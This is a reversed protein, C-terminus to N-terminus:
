FLPQQRGTKTNHRQREWEDWSFGVSIDVIHDCLEKPILSRAKSGDLGQTGTRSGRPAAEHCKDGPKCPPKFQPDPHNTWIDTPKMRTDGYHCYTVTHRMGDLGHMFDMKRMGSRPNEIFWLEPRLAMILNHLHMNVRDAAAAKATKPALNGHPEKERHRSIAAVSYTTCDPSAWVVDPRGFRELVLEPTVDMVDCCLDIDSFGPDWDVSFVVGGRREFAM